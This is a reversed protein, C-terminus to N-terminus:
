APPRVGGGERLEEFQENVIAYCECAHRVLADRDLISVLGRTYDIVGDKKLKGAMTSVTSRQVGTMVAMYEQTLPFRDAGVRDQTMLLWRALRGHVGHSVNCAVGQEAQLATARIHLLTLALLEPSQALRARFSAASIRMASGGMPAFVTSRSPRDTAVDILSIVGERGITATEVAKGDSMVTVFSICASGPFYIWEVVEGFESLVQAPALAVETMGISLAARDDPQLASLFFNLLKV